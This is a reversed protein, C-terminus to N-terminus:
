KFLVRLRISPSESSEVTATICRLAVGSPLIYDIRQTKAEQLPM